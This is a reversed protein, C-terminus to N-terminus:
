TLFASDESATSGGGGGSKNIAQQKLADAARRAKKEEELKKYALDYETGQMGYGTKGLQDLDSMQRDRAALSIDNSRTYEQGGLETARARANEKANAYKDDLSKMFRQYQPDNPDLNIGRNYLTQELQQKEDAYDKSFDKSLRGYVQDEIRSREAELDPTDYVSYDKLQNNALDLATQSLETGSTLVDQQQAPLERSLVNGLQKNIPKVQQRGGGLMRDAQAQTTANVTRGTRPDRYQGPGIRVAAM